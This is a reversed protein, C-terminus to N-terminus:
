NGRRWGEDCREYEEGLYKKCKKERVSCQCSNHFLDMVAYFLSLIFSIFYAASYNFNFSVTGSIGIEEPEYIRVRDGM